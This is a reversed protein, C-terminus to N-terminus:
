AGGSAAARLRSVCADKGLLFLVDFLGPGKDTGTLAARVPHVFSGFKIGLREVFARCDREIAAPTWFACVPEPADKKSPLIVADDVGQRDQPWSPPLNSAALHDAYALLWSKGAPEKQLNKQAAEDMAPPALLWGLKPGLESLLAIREQYCAVVNCLWSAHSVFAASPVNGLWPEARQLLEAPTWRRVYEGCMWRLKEEDFKSGSKGIDEIKFAAVMEDRTFVDRDGSFSWGLLAIYNFVAEPLFGKDRYDLMNTDADRKSLKKGDKNLILPIHAYLPCEAGLAEFLLRQKIGNLFHEEGRVVHTIKMGIDDVVCAFNYLPVGDPRLMVWDDLEKTNVEVDGRVLDHVNMVRAEPMKFRVNPKRGEAEFATRQAPSLTRCRRNYGAFGAKQAELEKRGAEIEDPTCYCLYAHGDALLREATARYQDLRQMQFYPGFAGGREPGEDWDIGLWRLGALIIQLSADTSRAQDTDEIRLLFTGGMARAAAWNYMATRAGGLHLPGTPSPAFRLRPTPHIM